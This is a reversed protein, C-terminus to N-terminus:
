ARSQPQIVDRYTDLFGRLHPMRAPAVKLDHITFALTAMMITIEPRFNKIAYAFGRDAEELWQIRAPFKKFDRAEGHYARDVEKSRSSLEYCLQVCVSYAIQMEFKPNTPRFTTIAGSLIDAIDPMEAMFKRHQVFEAGISDGVGGCVLARFVMESTQETVAHVIKSVFEWTRPTAFSHQPANPDFDYTKSPWRALYGLVEPHIDNNVAWALFDKWNFEMEIHVFRNAVPKALQFTVGHDTDRNGMAILMVEHPVLYDGIRRDLILQYSAAMVSPPASNFEELALIARANGTVRWRIVGSTREGNNDRLQITFSDLRKEVIKHVGPTLIDIEIKPDTCYHIGNNGVPNFFRITKISDITETVDFDLDRPFVMPPIWMVGKMHDIEGPMPVGRIDEPAVQSLRFDIFAIKLENAVQLAVASKSIGPGGHIYLSIDTNRMIRMAEAVGSPSLTNLSTVMM